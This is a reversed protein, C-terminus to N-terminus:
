NKKLIVLARKLDVDEFIHEPTWPIYLDPEIGVGTMGNGQDIKSLRSTPYWLEFMDQWKIVVLNAYDNLGATPRGIVTVKASKKATEVFSEGSSACFVDSLIVIKRPTNKGTFVAMNNLDSLDFEGFGKGRNKEWEKKLVKLFKRANPDEIADLSTNINNIWLQSNRETANMVMTDTTEEFLNVQREEFLYLLVPYYSADSGGINVRGDIILKNTNELEEDHENIITLIADPDAFDTITMLLIDQELKELKYKPIYAEKEYKKLQVTRCKGSQDVVQCSSYQIIIPDWKEREPHNEAIMRKHKELLNIIEFGDLSIIREGKQLRKEKGIETVYLSDHYRRVKFGNTYNKQNVSNSLIFYMHRDKFDLLYDQAIEVFLAPTLENKAELINIKKAYYEPNDWGKKDHCGAYDHHLISVIETFIESYM